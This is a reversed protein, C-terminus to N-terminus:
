RGRPAPPLTYEPRYILDGLGPRTVEIRVTRRLKKPDPNNSNYALIYYDSTENDIRQLGEAFRNDNCVCFGGTGEALAMLSSHQTGVFDRWEGISLQTRVSADVQGVLGRPDVTYFTTNARNAARILEAIELTLEADTFLRGSRIGEDRLLEHPARQEEEDADVRGNGNTDNPLGGAYREQAIKLREEEFPSFHFGSSVYVFAKRRNTINAAQELIRYAASFATHVRFRLESLKTTDNAWDLLDAVSPAAGVVKGIAENFRRHQYDYAPNIQISSPGSSVFGVLDTPHILTDRVQELLRRVMPTDAAMLHLDDIFIIFIRGSADQPRSRPLILGGTAPAAPAASALHSTARGGVVTYFNTLRQEVGDEFIRFEGATLDPVFRGQRDRVIVDSSVTDSAARFVTGQQGASTAEGALLAMWVATLGALGHARM